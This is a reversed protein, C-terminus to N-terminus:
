GHKTTVDHFESEAGLTRLADLVEDLAVPAAVTVQMNEEEAVMGERLDLEWQRLIAIKEDRALDDRALLAAVGTVEGPRSATMTEPKM